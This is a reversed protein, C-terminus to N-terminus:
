LYRPCNLLVLPGHLLLGLLFTPTYVAWPGNRRKIINVGEYVNKNAAYRSRDHDDQEWLDHNERKGM